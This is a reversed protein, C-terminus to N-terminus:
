DRCGETGGDGRTAGQQEIMLQDLEPVVSTELTGMDPVNQHQYKNVHSTNRDYCVGNPSQMTVKSGTKSVVTHHDPLFATDLKRPNERKLLVTDGPLM